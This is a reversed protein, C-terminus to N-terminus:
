KSQGEKDMQLLGKWAMERQSIFEECVDQWTLHRDPSNIGM